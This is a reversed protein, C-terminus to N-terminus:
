GATAREAEATWSPETVTTSGVGSYQLAVTFRLRNGFRNTGVVDYRFAQLRGGDTVWLEASVASLNGPDLATLGHEDVDLRDLGSAEYVHVTPGGTERTGNYSYELGELYRGIPPYAYPNSGNRDRVQRDYATRDGLRQRLLATGNPGVYIDAPQNTTTNETARYVGTERNVAATVNRYQLLAGSSAARVTSSQRFRFTGADDIAGRHRETVASGTLPADYPGGATANPSGAPSQTPTGTGGPTGCGALAVVALLSCLAVAYRNM